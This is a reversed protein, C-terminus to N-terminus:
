WEEYQTGDRAKGDVNSQFRGDRARYVWGRVNDAKMAEETVLDGVVRVRSSGNLPNEPMESVYPGFSRGGDGLPFFQPEGVEEAPLVLSGSGTTMQCLQAILAKEAPAM